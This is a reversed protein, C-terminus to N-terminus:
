SVGSRVEVGGHIMGQMTPEFFHDLETSELRSAETLRQEIEPPLDIALAGPNLELQEKRTAGSLVSRVQSRSMVWALAIETPSTGTQRAAVVVAELIEWNKERKSFKELTPNGSDKYEFVRRSGTIKGDVRQCKGTLFGSALPSWPAISEARSRLSCNSCLWNKILLPGPFDSMM